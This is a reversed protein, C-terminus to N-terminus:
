RSVRGERAEPKAFMRRLAEAHFAVYGRSVHTLEDRLRAHLEPVAHFPVGPSAHHEAHYPMNWMWWRVFPNSVVTRTREIQTGEHPLGTHEPMLYFGLLLHAIPWAFLLTGFGPVLELGLWVVSVIVGLSVRSEWAVRAVDRDRIFPFHRGWFSHPLLACVATFFFKGVMLAQGSVSFLYVAPNGPWDDMLEPAGSIEPDKEPDQTERHHEWHFCRFFSPAQLMLVASTWATVDNLWRSAFATQHGSEHLSPFFALLCLACAFVALGAAPQGDAALVLTAAATGAFALVQFGLRWLGPGDRRGMLDSAEIRQEPIATAQM